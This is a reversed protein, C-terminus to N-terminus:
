NPSADESVTEIVSDASSPYETYLSICTPALEGFSRQLRIGKDNPTAPEGGPAWDWTRCIQGTQTDFAVGGDFKTLVFRHAASTQRSPKAKAVPASPKQQTVQDCGVTVALIAFM